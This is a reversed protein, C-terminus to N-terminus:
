LKNFSALFILCLQGCIVTGFKQHRTYNYYINYENGEKNRNIYYLFEQFPHLDGFSDFYFVNYNDKFYAVWHSGVSKSTDLNIIGCEKKFPPSRPLTDRMFVGRFYRIKLQKVYKYIETDSM